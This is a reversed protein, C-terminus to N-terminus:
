ATAPHGTTTFVEFTLFVISSIPIHISFLFALLFITIILASLYHICM